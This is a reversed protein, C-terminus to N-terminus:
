RFKFDVPCRRALENDLRHILDFSDFVEVLTDEDEFIERSLEGLSIDSEKQIQTVLEGLYNKLEYIEM